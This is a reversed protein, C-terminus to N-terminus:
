RDPAVAEIRQLGFTSSLGSPVEAVGADNM